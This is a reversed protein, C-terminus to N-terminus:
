FNIKLSMEVDKQLWDADSKNQPGKTSCCQNLTQGLTDRQYNILRAVVGLGPVPPTKLDKHQHLM